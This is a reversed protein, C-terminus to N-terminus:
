GGVTTQSIKFYPKSLCPQWLPLAPGEKGAEKLINWPAMLTGKRSAPSPQSSSRAATVSVENFAEEGLCELCLALGM